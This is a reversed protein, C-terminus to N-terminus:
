AADAWRAGREDEIKPVADIKDPHYGLYFEAREIAKDKEPATVYLNRMGYNRHSYSIKWEM